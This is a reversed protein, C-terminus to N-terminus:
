HYELTGSRQDRLEESADPARLLLLDVGVAALLIGAPLGWESV